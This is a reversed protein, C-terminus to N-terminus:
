PQNNPEAQEAPEEVPEVFAPNTSGKARVFHLFGRRDITKIVDISGDYLRVKQGPSLKAAAKLRRLLSGQRQAEGILKQRRYLTLKALDEHHAM